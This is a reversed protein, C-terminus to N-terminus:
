SSLEQIKKKEAILLKDQYDKVLKDGQKEYNRKQDRSLNSEKKLINKIEQHILRFNIKGKEVIERVEQKLREKIEQTLLSLSFIAEEKNSRELNYGLQSDLITNIISPITKPESARIVLEHNPSITISKAVSKITKKEGRYNIILGGIVEVSIRNSRIKELKDVFVRLEKELHEIKKKKIAEWNIEM